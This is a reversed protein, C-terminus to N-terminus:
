CSHDDLFLRRLLDTADVLMALAARMDMPNAPYHAEPISLLATPLKVIRLGEQLEIDVKDPLELRLDLISTGFLLDIPKNGGKSTRIILQQPVTWNGTQLAISQEASLCWDDGFREDLYHACFGWYAAYWATSEGPSEGPRAPIYWGKM